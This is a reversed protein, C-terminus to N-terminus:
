AFMSLLPIWRHIHLLFNCANSSEDEPGIMHFNTPYEADRCIRFSRLRATLKLITGAFCSAVPRIAHRFLSLASLVHIKKEVVFPLSPSALRQDLRVHSSATLVIDTILRL